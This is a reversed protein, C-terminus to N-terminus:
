WITDLVLIGDLVVGPDGTRILDLLAEVIGRAQEEQRQLAALVAVARCGLIDWLVKEIGSLFSFTFTGHRRVLEVSHITPVTQVIVMHRRAVDEAIERVAIDVRVGLIPFDIKRQQNLRQITNGKVRFGRRVNDHAFTDGIVLKAVSQSQLVLDGL